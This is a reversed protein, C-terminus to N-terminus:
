LQDAYNTLYVLQGKISQADFSSAVRRLARLVAGPAVLDHAVVIIGGHIRGGLQWQTDLAAFDRVNRTFLVREKALAYELQDPDSLGARGAEAVTLCDFGARRLASITARHQSDEDVFLAITM